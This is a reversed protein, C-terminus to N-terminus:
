QPTKNNNNNNTTAVVRITKNTKNDNQNTTAPRSTCVCTCLISRAPFHCRTQGLAAFASESVVLPAPVLLLAVGVDKATEVGETSKAVGFRALQSDGSEGIRQLSCEM